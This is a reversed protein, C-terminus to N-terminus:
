VRQHAIDDNDKPVKEEEPRPSWEGCWDHPKAAFFRPYRRCQRVHVGIHYYRCGVCEKVM